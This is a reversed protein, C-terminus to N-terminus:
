ERLGIGCEYYWSLQLIGIGPLEGIFRVRDQIEEREIKEATMMPSSAASGTPGCPALVKLTCLGYRGTPSQFPTPRFIDSHNQQRSALLEIVIWLAGRLGRGKCRTASAFDHLRHPPSMCSDICSREQREQDASKNRGRRRTGSATIMGGRSGLPIGRPVIGAEQVDHM